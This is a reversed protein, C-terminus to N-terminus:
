VIRLVDSCSNYFQYATGHCRCPLLKGTGSILVFQLMEEQLTAGSYILSHTEVQTCATVETYQAEEVSLPDGTLKLTFKLRM